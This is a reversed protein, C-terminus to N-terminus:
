KCTWQLNINRNYNGSINMSSPYGNSGIVYTYNETTSGQSDYNTESQIENKNAKGTREMWATWAEIRGPLKLDYVTSRSLTSDTVNGLNDLRLSYEKTQNENEYVYSKGSYSKYTSTDNPSKYISTIIERVLYGAGNYIYNTNVTTEGNNYIQISKEILGALNLYSTSENTYKSGDPFTYSENKIITNGKYTYSIKMSDNNYKTELIRNANDYTCTGNMSGSITSVLCNPATATYNIFTGTGNNTGSESKKCANLFLFSSIILFLGKSFSRSNTKNKLIKM